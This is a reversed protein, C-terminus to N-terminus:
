FLLDPRNEKLWKISHIKLETVFKILEDVDSEVVVETYDYEAHNRRERCQDLYDADGRAEPGLILPLSEITYYHAGVASSRYGSAHLLITCLKLAANYAIVFRADDSISRMGADRIDREVIKFLNTIEERSTEHKRVRNEHLWKKFSM